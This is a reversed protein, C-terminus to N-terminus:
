RAVFGTSVTRCVEAFDIVPKRRSPDGIRCLELRQPRLSKGAIPSRPQETVQPM